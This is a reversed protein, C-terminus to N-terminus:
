KLAVYALAALGAGGIWWKKAVGTTGGSLDTNLWMKTKDMLTPQGAADAGFLIRGYNYPALPYAPPVVPPYAPAAVAARAFPTFPAAYVM